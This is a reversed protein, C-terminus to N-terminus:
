SLALAKDSSERVAGEVVYMRYAFGGSWDEVALGSELEGFM